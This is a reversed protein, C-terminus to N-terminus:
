RPPSIVESPRQKSSLSCYGVENQLNLFVRPDIADPHLHASRSSSKRICNHIWHQQFRCKWRVARHLINNEVLHDHSPTQTLSLFFPENVAFCSLSTQGGKGSTNTRVLKSYRRLIGAPIPSWAHRRHHPRGLEAYILLGGAVQVCSAMVVQLAMNVDPGVPSAWAWRMAAKAVFMESSDMSATSHSRPLTEGFHIGWTKNALNGWSKSSRPAKRKAFTIATIWRGYRSRIQM